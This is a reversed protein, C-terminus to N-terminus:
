RASRPKVVARDARADAGIRASGMLSEIVVQPLAVAFGQSNLSATEDDPPHISREFNNSSRLCSM